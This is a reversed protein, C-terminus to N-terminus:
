VKKGTYKQAWVEFSMSKSIGASFAEKLDKMSYEKKESLIYEFGVIKRYSEDRLTKNHWNNFHTEDNFEFDKSSYSGTKSKFEVRVNVKAM